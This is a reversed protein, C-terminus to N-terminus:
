TISHLTLDLLLMGKTELVTPTLRILRAASTKKPPVTSSPSASDSPYATFAGCNENMRSSPASGTVLTSMTEVPSTAQKPFLKSSAKRLASMAEPKLNGSLEISREVPGGFVFSYRSGVTLFSAPIPNSSKAVPPVALNRSAFRIM